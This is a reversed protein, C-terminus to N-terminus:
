GSLFQGTRLHGQSHLPSVINVTAKKQMQSPESKLPAVACQSIIMTDYSELTLLLM